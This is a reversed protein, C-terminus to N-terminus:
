ERRFSKMLNAAETVPDAGLAQVLWFYEIIDLRREGMEIKAIMGHDREVAKALDRQTMGARERLSRIHERLIESQGSHLSKKM